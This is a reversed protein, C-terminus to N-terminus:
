YRQAAADQAEQWEYEDLARYRAFEMSLAAEGQTLSRVADAYGILMSLPVEAKVVHRTDIGGDTPGELLKVDARRKGTLDSLVSGVHKEPARLEVNMLPELMVPAAEAIAAPLAESCAKRLAEAGVGKPKRVSLLTARLGYMPYGNLEGYQMASELGELAAKLERQM